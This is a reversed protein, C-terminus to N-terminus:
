DDKPRPTNVCGPTGPPHIGCVGDEGVSACDEEKTEAPPAPPPRPARQRFRDCGCGRERCRPDFNLMPSSFRDLANPRHQEETHGCACRPRADGTPSAARWMKGCRIYTQGSDNINFQFGCAEGCESCIADDHPRKRPTPSAGPALDAPAGNCVCVVRGRCLAHAPRGKLPDCPPTPSAAPAPARFKKALLLSRYANVQGEVEDAAEIIAAKGVREYCTACWATLCLFTGGNMKKGCGVCEYTTV